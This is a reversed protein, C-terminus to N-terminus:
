RPTSKENANWSWGKHRRRMGSVLNHMRVPSLGERRCFAQLNTVTVRRGSPSVFGLYTRVDRRQLGNRHTWGRHSCIRRNFVAVVHTKDLEHQRCFAALNHIPAVSCGAPDVFGEYTKIYARKRVSNRHTWGRHSRLKGTGKALGHMASFCLSEARCFKHLNEITRDNGEPDIFGEWTKVNRMAPAGAIACVNFGLLRNVCRREDIWKQEARLLQTENCLELVLVQFNNEGHSNWARQLFSNCHRGSRLRNRHQLWRAHVNVSSGVYVRNTVLCRIEYVGSSRSLNLQM